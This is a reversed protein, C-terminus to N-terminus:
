KAARVKQKLRAEVSAPDMEEQMSSSLDLVMVIDLGRSQVAAESYPIVPTMLALGVLVATALVAALPLRRARSARYARADLWRVTTSAVFRRRLSWRLLGIGAMVALLWWGIAPQLFRM